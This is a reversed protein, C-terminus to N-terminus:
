AQNFLLCLMNSFDFCPNPQLGAPYLSTTHFSPVCILPHLSASGQQDEDQSYRSAMSTNQEPVLSM